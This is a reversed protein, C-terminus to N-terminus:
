LYWSSFPGELPSTFLSLFSHGTKFIPRHVGPAPVAPLQQGVVAPSIPPPKLCLTVLTQPLLVISVGPTSVMESLPHSGPPILAPSAEWCPAWLSQVILSLTWFLSLSLSHSFGLSFTFYPYGSWRLICVTEKQEREYWWSAPGKSNAVLDLKGKLFPKPAHHMMWVSAGHEPVPWKVERFSLNEDTFNPHCQSRPIPTTIDFNLTIPCGFCWVCLVQCM